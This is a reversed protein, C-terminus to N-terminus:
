DSLQRTKDFTDSLANELDRAFSPATIQSPVFSAYTELELSSMGAKARIGVIRLAGSRNDAVIYIPAPALLAMGSPSREVHFRLAVLANTFGVKNQAVMRAHNQCSEREFRAHPNGACPKGTTERAAAD